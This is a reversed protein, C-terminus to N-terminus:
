TAPATQSASIQSAAPSDAPLPGPEERRRRAMIMPEPSPEAKVARATEDDAANSADAVNAVSARWQNWQVGVRVGAAFLLIGVVALGAILKAVTKKEISFEYAM